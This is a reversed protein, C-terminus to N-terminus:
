SASGKRIISDIPTKVAESLYILNTEGAKNELIVRDLQINKVIWEQFRDGRDVLVGNLVARINKGEQFIGQLNIANVHVIPHERWALPPMTPDRLAYASNFLLLIVCGKLLPHSQGRKCFRVAKNPNKQM